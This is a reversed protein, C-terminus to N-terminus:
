AVPFNLMQSENYLRKQYVISYLILCVGFMSAAVIELWMGLIGV